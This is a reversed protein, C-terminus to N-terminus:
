TGSQRPGFIRFKIGGGFQFLGVGLGGAETDNILHFYSGELVLRANGGTEFGISTGFYNASGEGTIIQSIYRPSTYVAMRETPHYSMHLPFHLQIVASEAIAGQFGFGPGVSMAFASTKDGAVQYKLDMVGSLGTSFKLGLDFNETVGYRGFVEGVFFVARTDSDFVQSIGSASIAMGAEVNGKGNTRGTQFSSLQACSVFMICSLALLSLTFLTRHDPLAL